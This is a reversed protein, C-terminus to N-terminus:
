QPIIGVRSFRRDCDLECYRGVDACRIHCTGNVTNNRCCQERAQNCAEHCAEAPSRSPLTPVGADGVSRRRRRQAGADGVIVLACSCLVWAFLKKTM